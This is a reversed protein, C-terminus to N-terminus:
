PEVMKKATLQGTLNELKRDISQMHADQQDLRSTLAENAKDFQDSSVVHLGFVFFSLANGLIFSVLIFFATKYFATGNGNTPAGESM